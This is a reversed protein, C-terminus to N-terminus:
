LPPAWSLTLFLAGPLGRGAPAVGTRTTGPVRASVFADAASLLHNALVAGLVTTAQRFRDDSRRILDRFRAHEASLGTWDWLFADGYARDGYWAVAKEYAADGPGPSGGAFHLDRALKWVSGNFTSPDDEPQVGPAASGDFAGSRLWHSLDEYYAWPGDLRQGRSARATEWALNRLADRLDRAQGRRHGWFVWLAVEATAYAAGRRQEQALQGWGPVVLSRAALTAASAGPGSVRSGAEQAPAARPTTAILLLALTGARRALRRM